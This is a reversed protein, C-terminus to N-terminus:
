RYDYDAKINAIKDNERIEVFYDRPDSKNVYVKAALNEKGDRNAPAAAFVGLLMINPMTFLGSRVLCTKGALNIYSCEARMAFSAGIRVAYNTVLQLIVADYCLGERKLRERKYRSNQAILWFVGGLVTWVAGNIMIALLGGKFGLALELITYLLLLGLGLPLFIKAFLSWINILEKM